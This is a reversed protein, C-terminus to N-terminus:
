VRPLRARVQSQRPPDVLDLLDLLEPYSLRAARLLERLREPGIPGSPVDVLLVDADRALVAARETRTVLRFGGHRLAQEIEEGSVALLPLAL